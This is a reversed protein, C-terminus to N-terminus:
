VGGVKLLRGGKTSGGEVERSSSARTIRSYSVLSTWESLGGIPPM